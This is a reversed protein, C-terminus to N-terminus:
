YIYKANSALTTAMEGRGAVLFVCFCLILGWFKDPLQAHVYGDIIYFFFFFLAWMQYWWLGLLVNESYGLPAM